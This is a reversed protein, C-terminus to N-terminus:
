LEMEGALAALAGSPPITRVVKGSDLDRVQVIVRGTDEDHTFHLERNQAAFAEARDAAARVEDLVEPPPTPPIGISVTDVPARTAGAVSKLTAQFAASTSRAASVGNAPRPPTPGIELSM